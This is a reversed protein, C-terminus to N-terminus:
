DCKALFWRKAMDHPADIDDLFMYADEIYDESSKGQKYRDSYQMNLVYYWDAPDFKYGKSNMVRSTEDYSWKEGSSGDRNKMRSVAYEATERTFHPNVLLDVKMLFKDALKSDEKRVEETFWNIKDVLRDMGDIDLNGIYKTILEKFTM